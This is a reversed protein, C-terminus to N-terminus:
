FRIPFSVAVATGSSSSISMKGGMGTALLRDLYLSLGIGPHDFQLPGEIKTFPQFLEDIKARPIGPGQDQVTLLAKDDKRSMRVAIRSGRPSYAVANDLMSYLIDVLWDPRQGALQLNQDVTLTINKQSASGQVREWAKRVLDTTAFGIFTDAAPIPQISAAAKFRSLIEDLRVTGEAFLQKPRGPPLQAQYRQLAALQTSLTAHSDRIFVNRAEDLTQQQDAHSQATRSEHRWILFKRVAGYLGVVLTVFVLLQASANTLTINNGVYIFAGNFIVVAPGILLLPVWFLPSRVVSRPPVLASPTPIAQLKPNEEVQGLLLEVSTGFAAVDKTLAKALAPSVALMDVSGRILTIPTRLYHAILTIFDVKQEALQVAREYAQRLRRAAMFERRSQLLLMSILIALPSFLVFPATQVLKNSIAFPDRDTPTHPSQSSTFPVVPTKAISVAFHWQLAPQGNKYVVISIRTGPHAGTDWPWSTTNTADPALSAVITDDVIFDARDYSGTNDAAPSIVVKYIGSLVQDNTLNVTLKLNDSQAPAPPISKSTKHQPTTAPTSQATTTTTTTTNTTSSSGGSNGGGSGSNGSSSSTTGYKTLFSNFFAPTTVSDSGGVGDFIITGWFIGATYVNDATDIALGGGFAEGGSSDFSRTWGYTGDSAYQSLYANKYSSQKSSRTDSGGPGDFAITGSFQGATYVKGASDVAVSLASAVGLSDDVYRTWGYTGDSKYNTVFATGVGQATGNHTGGAGDFTVTGGFSGSLYVDAGSAALGLSSSYGGFGNGALAFERVWQYTGGGNFKVVFSATNTTSSTDGGSFAVDGNAKGAVYVNGIQDLAVAGAQLSGGGSTDFHRTWAYTGNANFKTLCTNLTGADQSDSGGVGDFVVAGFCSAVVFMNNSADVALGKTDTGGGGTDADYYKTWAYTGNAAFKTLYTTTSSSTISNSGGVGDFVVAGSFNGTVYVNGTSDTVVGQVEASGASGDIVRTWGYSGDEAHKTLYVSTHSSSVTVTDSGGVGDFTATGRLIGAMFTNSKSDTTVVKNQTINSSSVGFYKTFGYAPPATAFAKVIPLLAIGLTLFVLLSMCCVQKKNSM